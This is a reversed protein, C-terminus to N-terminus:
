YVTAIENESWAISGNRAFLSSYIIIVVDIDVSRDDVAGAMHSLKSQTMQAFTPWRWTAASEYALSCVKGKLGGTPQKLGFM